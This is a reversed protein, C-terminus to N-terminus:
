KPICNTVIIESFKGRKANIGGILSARKLEVMRDDNSYIEKVEHHAANTLIYFANKEKIIEIMERLRYQDAKSFLKKNYKFFGNQNHSITYPPDLFVLDGDNINELCLFFDNNSLQTKKLLLSVRKLKNIDLFDKSRNGYPVNYKGKLNVRYIGNFSTQNLYIFKAARKIDTRFNKDRIGYYFEKTNEFTQLHKIVGEVNEKVCFYTEILETNLDNLFSIKNPKLHFFIAAGGLFPEHYNNESKVNLQLLLLVKNM